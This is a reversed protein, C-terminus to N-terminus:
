PHRPRSMYLLIAIWVAYIAILVWVGAVPSM